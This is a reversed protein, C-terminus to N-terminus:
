LKSFFYKKKTWFFISKGISDSLAINNQIIKNSNNIRVNHKLFRFNRPIAEFAHISKVNKILNFNLSYWGINAGIDIINRSKRAIFYIFNAVDSEYKKFNFIEIPIFRSDNCDLIMNILSDKECASIKFIIKKEKIIIERVDSGSLFKQTEFLIKSRQHSKKIYLKKSISKNLYKKYLIDFSM